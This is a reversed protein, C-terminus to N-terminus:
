AVENRRKEQSKQMIPTYINQLARELIKSLPKQSELFFPEGFHFNLSKPSGRKM